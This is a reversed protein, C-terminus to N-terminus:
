DKDWLHAVTIAEAAVVPRSADPVPVGRLRAQEHAVVRAGRPLRAMVDRLVPGLLFPPLFLFVIGAESLDADGAYGDRIEIRAATDPPLAAARARAAAALAPSAEVGVARCGFATAVEALVRGDGCGLDFVVDGPGPAAIALVPAVLSAPTGIYDGDGAPARQGTIRSRALRALRLAPYAAAPGDAAAIDAMTPRLARPLRAPRGDLAVAVRATVDDDRVLTVRDLYRAMAARQGRGPDFPLRFGREAAADLVASLDNRPASVTTLHFQLADRDEPGEVAALGTGAAAALVEARVARMRASIAACADRLATALATDGAARGDLVAASVEAARQEHIAEIIDPAEVM